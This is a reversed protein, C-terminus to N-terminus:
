TASPQSPFTLRKSWFKFIPYFFFNTIIAFAPLASASELFRIGGSENNTVLKALILTTLFGGIMVPRSFVCYTKLKEFTSFHYKFYMMWIYGLTLFSGLASWYLRSIGIETPHLITIIVVPGMLFIFVFTTLSAILLSKNSIPVETILSQDMKARKLVLCTSVYIVQEESFKSRKM